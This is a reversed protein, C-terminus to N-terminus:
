GSEVLFHGVGFFSQNGNGSIVLHFINWQQDIRNEVVQGLGIQQHDVVIRGVACALPAVFFAGFVRPYM